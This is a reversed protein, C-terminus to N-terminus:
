RRRIQYVMERNYSFNTTVLTGNTGLPAQVIFYNSNYFGDWNNDNAPWGWNMHFFTYGFGGNVTGNEDFSCQFIKQFGDAVWAHGPGSAPFGALIVPKQQILENYVTTSNYTTRYASLYGFTNMLVDAARQTTTGSGACQFNMQEAFAVDRMLRQTETSGFNDPMVSWNYIAPYAHFKMIQATATAVCGVPPQDNGTTTCGYHLNLANNYGDTQGWKTTLFPGATLFYSNSCEFPGTSIPPPPLRYSDWEKIMEETLLVPNERAYEIGKIEENLWTMIADPVSKWGDNVSYDDTIAMIFHSRDDAALLVLSNDSLKSLYFAPISDKDKFTKFDFIELNLDRSFEGRENNKNRLKTFLKAFSNKAVIEKASEISVFHQSNDNITNAQLSSEM